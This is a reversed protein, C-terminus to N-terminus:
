RTVFSFERSVTDADAATRQFELVPRDIMVHDGGVMGEGVIVRFVDQPSNSLQEGDLKRANFLVTNRGPVLHKTIEFYLQPEGNKLKRVWKANVFVDVDYGTSGPRTQETVLFYRRTLSPETSGAPADSSAPRTSAGGGGQELVRIQYGPADIHVDGKEDIRVTAKELKLNRLGTADDIRVGNLYISRALAIAPLLAALTLVLIRVAHRM